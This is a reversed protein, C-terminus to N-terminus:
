SINMSTGFCWVSCKPPVPLVNSGNVNCQVYGSIHGELSSAPFQLGGHEPSFSLQNVTASNRWQLKKVHLIASTATSGKYAWTLGGSGSFTHCVSTVVTNPLTASHSKLSFKIQLEHYFTKFYQYGLYQCPDSFVIQWKCGCLFLYPPDAEAALEVVSM